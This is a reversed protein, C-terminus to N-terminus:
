DVAKLKIAEQINFKGLHYSAIRYSLVLAMTAAVFNSEISNVETLMLRCSIHRHCKVGYKINM